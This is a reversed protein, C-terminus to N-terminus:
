QPHPSGRSPRGRLSDSLWQLHGARPRRRQCLCDGCEMIPAHAAMSGARLYDGYSFGGPIILGDVQGVSTDKHWLIEGTSGQDALVTNVIHLADDDCNSGPFRVVGFHHAM